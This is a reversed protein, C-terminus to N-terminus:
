GCPAAPAPAPTAIPAPAPFRARLGVACAVVLSALVAALGLAADPGAAPEDALAVAGCGAALLVAGAAMVRRGGSRGILRGVPASAFGMAVLAVSFGGHVLAPSWGLDAAISPGVLGIAYFSVGLM